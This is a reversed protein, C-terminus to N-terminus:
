AAPKAAPDDLGEALLRAETADLLTGRPDREAILARWWQVLEVMPWDLIEDATLEAHRGKLAHLVTATFSCRPDPAAGSDDGAPWDFHARTWLARAEALAAALRAEGTVPQGGGTVLWAAARVPAFAWRRWRSGASLLKGAFVLFAGLHPYRPTLRFRLRAIFLSRRISAFQGFAPHHLWIFDALDEFRGRNLDVGFAVLRDRTRLSIPRLRFGALTPTYRIFAAARHAAVAARHAALAPSQFPEAKPLSALIEAKTRKREAGPPPQPASPVTQAKPM